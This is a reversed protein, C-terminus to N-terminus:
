RRTEPSTLGAFGPIHSKMLGAFAAVDGCLNGTDSGGCHYVTGSFKVTDDYSATISESTGGACAEEGPLSCRRIDLGNLADVLARFEEATLPFQM